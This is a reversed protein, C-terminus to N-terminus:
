DDTEELIRRAAARVALTEAPIDLDVLPADAIEIPQGDISFLEGRVPTVNILLINGTCFDPNQCARNLPCGCKRTISVDDYKSRGPQGDLRNKEDREALLARFRNFRQRWHTAAGSTPLRYQGGGAALAAEVVRQVDVFLALNKSKSSM